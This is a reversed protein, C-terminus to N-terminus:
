GFAQGFLHPGGVLAGCVDQGGDDGQGGAPVNQWLEVVHDEAALLVVAPLPVASVRVMWFM